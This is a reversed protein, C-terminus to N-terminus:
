EKMGFTDCNPYYTESSKNCDVRSIEFMSIQYYYRIDFLTTQVYKRIRM